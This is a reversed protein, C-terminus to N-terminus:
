LPQKFYNIYRDILKRTNDSLIMKPGNESYWAYATSSKDRASFSHWDCLMEIVYEIDMDQPRMEGKDSIVLWYQWHHKNTKQHHLWALQYERESAENKNGYFHTAYPEFEIADYKSEDHNKIVVDLRDIFDNDFESLLSDRILNYANLVNSKHTIIYETNKQNSESNERTLKLM